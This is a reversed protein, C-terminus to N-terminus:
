SPGALTKELSQLADPNFRIRREAVLAHAFEAERGLEVSMGLSYGLRDEMEAQIQDLEDVLEDLSRPTWPGRIEAAGGFSCTHSSCSVCAGATLIAALGVARRTSM